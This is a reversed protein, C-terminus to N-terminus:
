CDGMQVFPVHHVSHHLDAPDDAARHDGPASRRAARERVRRGLRHSLRAATSGKHKGEQHGRGGRRGPRPRARQVQDRCLAPQGRPLDGFRRGSKSRAFSRWRFANAPPRLCAFIRSPKRPTATSRFIACCWTTARRARCCRRSLTAEWRPRSPTRFTPSMSRIARPRGATWRFNQNPQGLVRFVGLDQIGKVQRMVAVIQDAKEELVKLDDGYVKTALEGKVGSVAEEMNDAIPQSFNWIAGPIKELEQDMAAIM